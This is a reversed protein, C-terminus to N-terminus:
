LVTARGSLQAPKNKSTNKKKISTKIEKWYDDVNKRKESRQKLKKILDMTKNDAKLFIIRIRFLLKHLSNEWSNSKEKLHKKFDAIKDKSYEKIKEFISDKEPLAAIKDIKKFIFFIIGIFSVIFTLLLIIDFNM